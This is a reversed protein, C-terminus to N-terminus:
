ETLFPTLALIDEPSVSNSIPEFEEISFTYDGTEVPTEQLEIIKGSFEDTKELDIAIGNETQKPQGSEDKQSYKQILLNLENEYFQVQPLIELYLKNLLFKTRIPLDISQRVKQYFANIELLNVLKLKM